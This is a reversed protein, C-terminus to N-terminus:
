SEQFQSNKPIIDCLHTAERYMLIIHSLYDSSKDSTINVKIVQKLSHNDPLDERFKWTKRAKV